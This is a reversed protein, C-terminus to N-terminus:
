RGSLRSMGTTLYAHKRPKQSWNTDTTHRWHVRQIDEPLVNMHMTLLRDIRLSTNEIDTTRSKHPKVALRKEQRTEDSESPVRYTMSSLSLSATSPAQRSMVALQTRFFASAPYPTPGVRARMKKGERATNSSPMKPTPTQRLPPTTMSTQSNCKKDCRNLVKARM